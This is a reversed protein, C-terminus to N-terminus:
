CLKIYIPNAGFSAGHHQVRVTQKSASTIEISSPIGIAAVGPSSNSSHVAKGRLASDSGACDIASACNCFAASVCDSLHTRLSIPPLSRHFSPCFVASFILPGRLSKLESESCRPSTGRPSM